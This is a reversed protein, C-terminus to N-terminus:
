LICGECPLVRTVASVIRQLLDDIELTSTVAKTVDLLTIIRPDIHNPLDPMVQSVEM